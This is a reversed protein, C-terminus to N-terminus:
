VNQPAALNNELTSCWKINGGTIISPKLKDIDEGINTIKQTTKKKKGIAVRFPTTIYCQPKM